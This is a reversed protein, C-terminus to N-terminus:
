CISVKGPAGPPLHGSVNRFAQEAPCPAAGTKWISESAEPELFSHQSHRSGNQAQQKETFELRAATFRSMASVSVALCLAFSGWALCYSWGYDWTQPKWDEPGLNVTIQFITTYMMHAVMGLLGALVMFIAVLADVRLWHFGPSRCSVRSGLLIASTLILVIDLVEGGISLWLVGQEEAPVVSRFSRCKEDEGNLSEECSQWLGVHFGRQIFKDDGLEWIYLVAQSNNDMRGNSSNDRKFHICHQGGPQDQCLPKVVRRTGECWHSSVVATLSFTLALCVPLLLLAQQQKARDM